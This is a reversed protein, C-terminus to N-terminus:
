KINNALLYEEVKEEIFNYTKERDEFTNGGQHNTLILNDHSKSYEVLEPEDIFDVAAGAITNSKLAWLLTGNEVIKSRSTNIFYATPKMQKFMDKTFFGENDELPIHLSLIDATSLPVYFAGHQDICWVNMALMSCFVNVQKGIRGYGGFLTVQKGKLTHGKYEERDKYPANLATKYCRLLAIILGLTHEATSTISQLFETEGKLSIVKIGRKECEKLPLHEVSTMNCGIVKLDPFDDLNIDEVGMIVAQGNHLVKM